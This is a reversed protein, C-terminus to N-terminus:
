GLLPALAVFLALALVLTVVFGALAILFVRWGSHFDHDSATEIAEKPMQHHEAIGRALLIAAIAFGIGGGGPLHMRIWVIALLAAAGGRATNRAAV